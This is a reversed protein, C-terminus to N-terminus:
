EQLVEELAPHCSALRTYYSELHWGSLTHSQSTQPDRNGLRHSPQNYSSIQKLFTCELPCGLEQLFKYLGEPLASLLVSNPREM